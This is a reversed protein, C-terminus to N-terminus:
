YNEEIMGGSSCWSTMGFIFQIGAATPDTNRKSIKYYKNEPKLGM